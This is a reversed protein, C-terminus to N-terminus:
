VVVCCWVVDCKTTAAVEAEAIAVAADATDAAGAATVSGAVDAVGVAAFDSVLSMELLSVSSLVVVIVSVTVWLSM